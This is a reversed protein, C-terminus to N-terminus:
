RPKFTGSVWPLRYLPLWAALPVDGGNYWSAWLGRQQRELIALASFTSVSSGIFKAASLALTYEVLAALEPEAPLPQPM